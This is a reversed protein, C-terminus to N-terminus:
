MANVFFYFNHLLHIKVRGEEFWCSGCVCSFIFKLFFFLFFSGSIMM